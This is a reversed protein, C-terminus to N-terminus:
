TACRSRCEKGVRREESRHNFSCDSQINVNHFPIGKPTTGGLKTIKFIVSVSGPTRPSVDPPPPLGAFSSVPATTRTGNNIWSPSDILTSVRLPTYTELALSYLM